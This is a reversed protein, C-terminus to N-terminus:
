KKRFTMHRMLVPEAGVVPTSFLKQMATVATAPAAYNLQVYASHSHGKIPYATPVPERAAAELSTAGAKTLFASVKTVEAAREADTADPRLLLMTEYWASGTPPAVASKGAIVITSVDPPPPPASYGGPRGGGGQQPSRAPLFSSPACPLAVFWPARPPRHQRAHPVGHTGHPTRFLLAHHPPALLHRARGRILLLDARRQSPAQRAAAGARHTSGAHRAAAARPRRVRATVVVGQSRRAPAPARRACAGRAASAFDSV